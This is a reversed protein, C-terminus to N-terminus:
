MVRRRSQGPAVTVNRSIVAGRLSTMSERERCSRPGTRVDACAMPGRICGERAGLAQGPSPLSGHIGRALPSDLLFGFGAILAGAYVLAIM